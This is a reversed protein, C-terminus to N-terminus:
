LEGQLNAQNEPEKPKMSNILRERLFTYLSFYSEPNYNPLAPFFLCPLLYGPLSNKSLNLRHFTKFTLYLWFEDENESLFNLETGKRALWFPLTLHLASRMTAASLHGKSYLTAMEKFISEQESSNFNEMFNKDTIVWLRSHHVFVLLNNFETNIMLLEPKLRKQGAFVRKLIEQSQQFEVGRYPVPAMNHIYWYPFVYLFLDYLLMPGLLFFASKGVLLHMLAIITAESALVALWLRVLNSSIPNQSIM